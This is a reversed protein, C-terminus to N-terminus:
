KHKSEDVHCLRLIENLKAIRHQGFRYVKLYECGLGIVVHAMTDDECDNLIEFM